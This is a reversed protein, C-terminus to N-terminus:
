KLLIIVELNEGGKIIERRSRFIFLSNESKKKVYGGKKSIIEIKQEFILLIDISCCLKDEGRFPSTHGDTIILTDGKMNFQFFGPPLFPLYNGLSDIKSIEFIERIQSSTDVKTIIESQFHREVISLNYDIGVDATASGDQRVTIIYNTTCSFLVASLFIILLFRVM